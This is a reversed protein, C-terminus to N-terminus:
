TLLIIDHNRKPTFIIFVMQLRSCRNISLINNPSFYVIIFCRILIVYLLYYECSLIVLYEEEVFCSVPANLQIYDIHFLILLKLLTFDFKIYRDCNSRELDLLIIREVLNQPILQELMHYVLLLAFFLLFLLSHLINGVGGVGYLSLLNKLSFLLGLLLQEFM